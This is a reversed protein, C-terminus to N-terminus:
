LEPSLDITHAIGEEVIVVKDNIDRRADLFAALSHKAHSWKPRVKAAPNKKRRKLEKAREVGWDHERAVDIEAVPYTLHIRYDVDGRASALLELTEREPNGHEGNGSFVYHDATVREFFDLEVNNASGHHPGKMVDVRMSGGDDVLGVLELGKLIKDGRGDGTLLISKDHAEVLVVISSLNSPSKDAYSALASATVRQEEPNKGLWDRHTKQLRKVEPLMPGIVTFVMDRGMDIPRSESSAVILGGSLEVNREINLKTADDRLRRGQPVSALVMVADAIASANASDELDALLDAPLDGHMAAPGFRRHVAGSLEDADNDIIDDFSNHWLNLVRVIEPDNIERAERLEKTLELLGFLHDDDIHSLMLLDVPLAEDTTLGREARLLELRPRLFPTYVADPGGDILALGPDESTGYHLLMCDGKCARLVELRLVNDPM